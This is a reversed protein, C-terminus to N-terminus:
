KYIKKNQCYEQRFGQHADRDKRGHHWPASFCACGPCMCHIFSVPQDNALCGKEKEGKERGRVKVNGLSSHLLLPPALRQAQLRSMLAEPTLQESVHVTRLEHQYQSLASCLVHSQCVTHALHPLTPTLLCAGEILRSHAGNVEYFILPPMM